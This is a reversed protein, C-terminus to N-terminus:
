VPAAEISVAVAASLKRNRRVEKTTTLGRRGLIALLLSPRYTQGLDTGYTLLQNTGPTPRPEIPTALLLLKPRQLYFKFPM